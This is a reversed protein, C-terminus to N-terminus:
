QCLLRELQAFQSAIAAVESVMSLGLAQRQQQQNAAAPPQWHQQQQQLGAWVWELLLLLLAPAL